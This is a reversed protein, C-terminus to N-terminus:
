MAGGMKTYISNTDNDVVTDWYFIFALFRM